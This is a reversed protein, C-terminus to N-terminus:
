RAKAVSGERDFSLRADVETSVRGPVIQLIELGFAVALKDMTVALAGNGAAEQKADAITRNVLEAYEPMTAAKLLLSPNTTADRPQYKRMAAFDGTDAVVVTIKKLQELQSVAAAAQSSPGELTATPTM